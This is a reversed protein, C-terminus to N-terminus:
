CAIVANQPLKENEHRSVNSKFLKQKM